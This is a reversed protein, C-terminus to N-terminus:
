HLLGEMSVDLDEAASLNEAEAGGGDMICARGSDSGRNQTGDFFLAVRVERGVVM